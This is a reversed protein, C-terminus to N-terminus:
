RTSSSKSGPAMQNSPSVSESTGSFSLIAIARPFAILNNLSSFIKPDHPDHMHLECVLDIRQYFYPMSLAKLYLGRGGSRMTLETYRLHSYKRWKWIQDGM